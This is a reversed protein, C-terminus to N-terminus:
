VIAGYGMAGVQTKVRSIPVSTRETACVNCRLDSVSFNCRMAPEGWCGPTPSRTGQSQAMRSTGWVNLHVVGHVILFGVLLWRM